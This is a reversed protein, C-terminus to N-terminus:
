NPAWRFFRAGLGLFVLNPMGPVAIGAFHDGDAAADCTVQFMTVNDRLRPLGGCFWSLTMFEECPVEAEYRARRMARARRSPSTPLFTAM